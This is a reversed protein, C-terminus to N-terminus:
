TRGRPSIEPRRGDSPAARSARRRTRRTRTPSNNPVRPPARRSNTTVRASKVDLRQAAASRAAPTHTRVGREASTLEVHARGEGRLAGHRAVGARELRVRWAGTLRQCLPSVAAHGQVGGRNAGRLPGSRDRDEAAHGLLRLEGLHQELAARQHMLRTGVSHCREGGGRPHSVRPGKGLRHIGGYESARGRPRLRPRVFPHQSGTWWPTGWRTGAPACPGPRTAPPTNSRTPDLIVDHKADVWRAPHPPCGELVGALTDRVVGLLEPAHRLASARTSVRLIALRRSLLHRLHISGRVRKNESGRRSSAQKRRPSTAVHQEDRAIEAAHRRERVRLITEGHSTRDDQRPLVRPVALRVRLSQRPAHSPRRACSSRPSPDLPSLVHALNPIRAPLVSLPSRARHSLYRPPLPLSQHVDILSPRVGPRAATEILRDIRSIEPSTADDRLAGTRQQSSPFPWGIEFRARTPVLARASLCHSRADVRGTTVARTRAVCASRADVADSRRGSERIRPGQDSFLRSPRAGRPWRSSHGAAHEPGGHTPTVRWTATTADAPVNELQAGVTSRSVHWRERGTRRTARGRRSGSARGGWLFHGGREM